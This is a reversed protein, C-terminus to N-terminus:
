RGGTGFWSKLAEVRHRIWNPMRNHPDDATPDRHFARAIVRAESSSLAWSLAADVECEFAITTFFDGKDPNFHKDLGDLLEDNRYYAGRDRANMMAEVPTSLWVLSAELADRDRRPLDEARLDPHLKEVEKDQFHWRAYGNRYARIEILVVGSTYQRIEAEHRYLWLAALNTGYNDYYGSDVVRRAPYTPLSVGPSVLPFSANMRAATGVQFKAEAGPFLRFLEVASISFGPRDPSGRIGSYENFPKFNLVSGNTWTLDMLDLNSIFLRRADEVLMPSFVLSPRRGEAELNKLDQSSKRMPSCGKDGLSNEAWQREIERGRDWRFTGPLWITPMDQLLMTQVVRRLSDKALAGSLRTLGTQPDVALKGAPTDEFEAVYLAAGVMGGSAGTFM